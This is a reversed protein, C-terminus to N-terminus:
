SVILLYESERKRQQSLKSHQFDYIEVAELKNNNDTM